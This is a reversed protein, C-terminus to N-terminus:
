PSFFRVLKEYTSDLNEPLVRTEGVATMFSADGTWRPLVHLHLHDALGAGACRGLNMGLNYGEPHYCAELASQVKQALEMMESATERDLGAFDAVHAYPAIMTHGNTYPFINLLVLNKRGRHLVRHERDHGPGAAAAACLFCAQNGASESVYRFRWPSWLHDM